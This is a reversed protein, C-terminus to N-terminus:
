VMKFLHDRFVLALFQEEIDSSRSLKDIEAEYFKRLRGKVESSEVRSDGLVELVVEIPGRFVSPIAGDTAKRGAFYIKSRYGVFTGGVAQLVVGFDAGALCAYAFLRLRSASGVGELDNATLLEGHAQGGLTRRAGLDPSTLLADEAGHGAFIWTSIGDALERLAVKSSANEGRSFHRFGRLVDQLLLRMAKTFSDYTPVFAVHRGGLERSM